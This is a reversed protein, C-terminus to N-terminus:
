FGSGGGWEPPVFSEERAQPAKSPAPPAPPPVTAASPARSHEVPPAGHPTLMLEEGRGAEEALARYKGRSLAELDQPRRIVTPQLFVLLNTKKREHTTSRFLHGLLPVDGLLPVKTVSDNDQNEILGGLAVMQGQRVVVTTKISRKNTLLGQPNSVTGPVISSNEEYIELRISDGTTIQPTVRLKLGIDERTITQFPNTVGNTTPVTGTLFPVNQGVVIEAEENDMTLLNPTSLINVGTDSQLATVLAGLNLYQQGQWTILGDVVGIALGNLLFPNASAVNINNPNSPNTFSTQGIFSPGANPKTFDNTTRWEVGFEKQLDSTVEMVLGEVYVQLRRIDLKEIVTRLTDYDQPDAGIVLANTAKDAMISVPRMNGELAGAGAPSEKTGGKLHQIMDTLVKAMGEADANKLYYVHIYDGEKSPPRDLQTVVRRVEALVRKPVLAVLSNTRDDALFKAPFAQTKEGPFAKNLTEALKLASAYHLSFVELAPGQEPVDLLDVMEVIRRVNSAYDTIILTNSPAHAALYSNPSILPRLVPVLQAAEVHKLRILQSVLADTKAPPKAEDVGRVSVGKQKADVAPVIKQVSGAPVIAYGQVELISEFIQRAEEKTVPSPTIITVTGKVRNDILYNVGTLESMFKVIARIDAQQFDLTIHEGGHGSPAPKAAEGIGAAGLFLLLGLLALLTGGGWSVVTSGLCRRV